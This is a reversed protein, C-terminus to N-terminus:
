DDERPALAVRLLLLLPRAEPPVDQADLADALERAAAEIRLLREVEATAHEPLM